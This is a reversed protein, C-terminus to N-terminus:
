WKNSHRLNVNAKTADRAYKEMMRNFIERDAPDIDVLQFGVNYVYPDLPDVRCWRSRAGFVMHPKDAVEGSLNILFQFDKNVPLPRQSDLKFGGTSIDSLHGIVERTVPNMVQKYYFFDKREPRDRQRKSSEKRQFFRSSIKEPQERACLLNTVIMNIRTPLTFEKM